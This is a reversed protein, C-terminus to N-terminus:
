VQRCRQLGHVARSVTRPCPGRPCQRPMRGELVADLGQVLAALALLGRVSIAAPRGARRPNLARPPSGTAPPRARGAAALEQPDPTSARAPEAGNTRAPARAAEVHRGAPQTEVTRPRQLAGSIALGPLERGVDIGAAAARDLEAALSAWDHASTLAPNVSAVLGRWREAAPQETGDGRAPCDALHLAVIGIRAQLEELQPRLQERQADTGFVMGTRAWAQGHLLKDLDDLAAIERDIGVSGGAVVSLLARMPEYDGNAAAVAVHVNREPSGRTWDLEHGAVAALDGLWVRISRGNGERATHAHLYAAWYYAARDAWQGPDDLARLNDEARLQQTVAATYTEIWRHHLFPEGSQNPKAVDVYRLQGAFPYVDAFLREHIDNLHALDLTRPRETSQHLTTEADASVIREFIAVAVPDTLEAVTRLVDTGPMLYSRWAPSLNPDTTRPHTM